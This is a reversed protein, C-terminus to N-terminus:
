WSRYPLHGMERHRKVEGESPLIANDINRIFEDERDARIREGPIGDEPGDEGVENVTEYLQM